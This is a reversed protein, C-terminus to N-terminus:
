GVSAQSSICELDWRAKTASPEGVPLSVGLSFMDGAVLDVSAIGSCSRSTGTITCLASSPGGDSNSYTGEQISFARSNGTGPATALEIYYRVSRCTEQVLV